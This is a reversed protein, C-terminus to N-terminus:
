RQAPSSPSPALKAPKYRTTALPCCFFISSGEKDSTASHIAGTEQNTLRVVAGPLVAGTPDLVLGTLAGTSPTQSRIQSSFLVAITMTLLLASYRRHRLGDGRSGNSM